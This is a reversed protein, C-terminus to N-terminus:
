DCRKAVGRQARRYWDAGYRRSDRLSGSRRDGRAVALLPFVWYFHEEVCLSWAHSFATNQLYDISLNMTFTVFKWWPEM